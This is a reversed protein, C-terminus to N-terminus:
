GNAVLNITCLTLVLVSAIALFKVFLQKRM